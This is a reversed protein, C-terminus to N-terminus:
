EELIEGTDEDINAPKMVDDAAVPDFISAQTMKDDSFYVDALMNVKIKDPTCVYDPVRVYKATMNDDFMCLVSSYNYIENTRSNEKEKPTVSRVKVRM